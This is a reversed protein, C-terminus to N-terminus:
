AHFTHDRTTIGKKAGVVGSAGIILGGRRRTETIDAGVRRASKIVAQENFKASFSEIIDPLGSRVGLASELDSRLADVWKSFRPSM